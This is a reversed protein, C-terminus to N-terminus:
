MNPIKNAHPFVGVYPGKPVFNNNIISTRMVKADLESPHMKELGLVMLKTITNMSPMCPSPGSIAHMFKILDISAVIITIVPRLGQKTAPDWLFENLQDHFQCREMANYDQYIPNFPSVLHLAISLPM